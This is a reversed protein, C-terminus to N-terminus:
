GGGAIALKAESASLMAPARARSPRVTSIPM